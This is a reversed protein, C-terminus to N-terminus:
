KGGLSGKRLERVEAWGSGLAQEVRQWLAATVGADVGLADAEELCCAAAVWREREAFCAALDPLLSAREAGLALARRLLGIAEGYRGGELRFRGLVAFLAGSAALEQGFQIGLRLVDEAWEVHGASWYAQGLASLARMLTEREVEGLSQGQPTRLFMSLPGPWAGLLAITTDFDGAANAAEAQPVLKFDISFPESPRARTVESRVANDLVEHLNSLALEEGVGALQLAVTPPLGGGFSLHTLQVGFLPALLLYHRGLTDRIQDATPDPGDILVEPRPQGLLVGGLRERFEALPLVQVEGQPSCFEVESSDPSQTDYRVALIRVSAVFSFAVFRPGLAACLQAMEEVEDGLQEFWGDARIEALDVVQREFNAM